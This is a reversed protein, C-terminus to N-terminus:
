AIAVVALVLLLLLLWIPLHAAFVIVVWVVAILLLLYILVRAAYGLPRRAVSKATSSTRSSPLRAPYM